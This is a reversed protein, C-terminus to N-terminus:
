ITAMHIHTTNLPTDETINNGYAMHTTNLPTDETINNGYAM